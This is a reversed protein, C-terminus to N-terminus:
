RPVQVVTCPKIRTLRISKEKRHQQLCVTFLMLLLSILPLFNFYWKFNKLNSNAKLFIHAKYILFHALVSNVLNYPSYNHLQSFKFINPRRVSRNMLAITQLEQRSEITIKVLRWQESQSLYYFPSVCHM